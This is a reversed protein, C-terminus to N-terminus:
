SDGPRATRLRIFSIIGRALVAYVIMAIVTDPEFVITTTDFGASLARFVGTFPLTFVGSLAYIFSVFVSSTSAGLLKLVLRFALLVEIVGLVYYITNRAQIFWLPVERGSGTVSKGNNKGEQNM